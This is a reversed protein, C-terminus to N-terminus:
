EVFLLPVGIFLRLIFNPSNSKVHSDGVFTQSALIQDHLFPLWGFSQFWDAQIM